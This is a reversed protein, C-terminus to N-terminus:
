RLYWAAAFGAAGAALMLLITAWLPVRWGGADPSAQLAADRSTWSTAVPAAVEPDRGQAGGPESAEGAPTPSDELRGTEGGASPTSAAPPSLQIVEWSELEHEPPPWVLSPGASAGRGAADAAHQEAPLGDDRRSPPVPKASQTM